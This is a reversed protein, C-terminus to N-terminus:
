EDRFRGHCVSCQFQLKDWRRMGEDGSWDAQELQELRLYFTEFYQDMEATEEASRYKTSQSKRLLERISSLRRRVAGEGRQNKLDELLRNSEEEAEDMLSIYEARLEDTTKPKPPETKPSTGGCSVIFVALLALARNMEPITAGPPPDNWGWVGRPTPNGLALNM